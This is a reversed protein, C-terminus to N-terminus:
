SCRRSQFMDPKVYRRTKSYCGTESQDTCTCKIGQFGSNNWHLEDIWEQPFTELRMGRAEKIGAKFLVAINILGNYDYRSSLRGPSNKEVKKYMLLLERRILYLTNAIKSLFPHLTGMCEVFVMDSLLFTMRKLNASISSFIESATYMQEAFNTNDLKTGDALVVRKKFLTMVCIWWLSEADHIPNHHFPVEIDAADVAQLLFGDDVANDEKSLDEFELRKGNGGEATSAFLFNEAEVEM